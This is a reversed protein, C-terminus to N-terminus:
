VPSADNVFLYIGVGSALQGVTQFTHTFVLHGGQGGQQTEDFVLAQDDFIAVEYSDEPNADFEITVTCGVSTIQPSDPSGAARAITAPTVVTVVLTSLFILLAILRYRFM